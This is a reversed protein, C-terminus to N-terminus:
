PPAFVLRFSAQHLTVEGQEFMASLREGTVQIPLGEVDRLILAYSNPREQVMGWIDAEIELPDEELCHDKPWYYRLLDGNTGRHEWPFLLGRTKEIWSGDEHVYRDQGDKRFGNGLAFREMFGQKEPKPAQRSRQETEDTNSAQEDDDEETSDDVSVLDEPDERLLNGMEADSHDPEEPADAADDATWRDEPGTLVSGTEESEWTQSDEVDPQAATAPRQADNDEGPAVADEDSRQAEPRPSLTFNEELYDQVDDVSREYGYDLAAKIDRRAFDKGIEEPVRKALKAKSLRQVYLSTGLWLVDGARATGAPTGDIYPTFKLEPTELWETEALRKGLERVRATEDDSDFEVRTMETGLTRLWGKSTPHGSLLPNDEFREEIQTALLPLSSFPPNGSTEDSVRQLDATKQKVWQHLNRYPVLSQMTLAYDLTEVSAWEGALNLWHGCEEWIRLPHRALLSRVRRADDQPLISGSPLTTLWEIALDASPREPVGIKRWLTLDSVAERVIAADPVDLDDTSLFVGAASAWGGDETLILKETRLAHKITQFDDTSASAVMQDLRHYWKDLEYAPPKEAQALARLRNLIGDSGTPSSRVGLLDLLARTSENDLHGAVFPEVGLLAETESTRRLLDVPKHLAGLTDPLCPMEQLRLAWKPRLGRRVVTSMQGNSAKQVVKASLMPSWLGDRGNLIRATIKSWIYPDEEHKTNWYYLLDDDFDWDYIYFHPDVYNSNIDKVFSRKALEADLGGRRGSFSRTQVMPVFTNLGSKGSSVWQTWDERSCSSFAATYDHHILLSNRKREPLLEELEGDEDFLVGDDISRFTRDQTAFRFAQDIKAGIKAAIQALQVCHALTTNDEAFFAVAVQGMVKSVDSTDDLGTEELVAFVAEVDEEIGLNANESAARRQDALFRPWNQNLVILHTALFEWDAESQLLKKEGLRVVEQAAHLTDKGQVPVINLATADARGGYGTVEAAIYVWLQFLRGWTEPRPLHRQQLAALIENNDVEDVVDWRLLKLLHGPDLKQCLVPRQAEDLLTAAQDPPWVALIPRPIIISQKEKVVRGDETLLFAEGDIGEAFAGEVIVGCARELSSDDRDVAPLLGYARAREDLSIETQGLWRLMASAALSGARKLLWRNTPSTEPDKIKLRAPDQIFPANCAFPLTTEVGTPLVVYLRGKAGLVIEVRSPPFETEEETGLMREDRIEALADAPFAEPDSRILLFSSDTTEDLSMWESDQIPGAGLNRWHVEQDGIRMFRINRFFLFSVPSRLWEELNKEVERQRYQDAIEVRVRTWGDAPFRQPIWRPETFRNRHFAVSLSPTFLEVQHGLSFTSKFGIGRFGITHLARKNSFGFRCISLFHEELFDEGNHEFIFVDDQIRVTAETAGADDANQLLESLIHRPSQVQKFLQHWPGALEPDQELQDWRM